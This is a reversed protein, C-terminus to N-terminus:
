EPSGYVRKMGSKLIIYNRGTKRYEDPRFRGSSIARRLTSDDLGWEESAEKLSMVMDLVNNEGDHIKM